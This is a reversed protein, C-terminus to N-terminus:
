SQQDTGGHSSPRIQALSRWIESALEFNGRSEGERALDELEAQASTDGQVLRLQATLARHRMLDRYALLESHQEVRHSLQQAEDFHGELFALRARLSLFEATNHPGGLIMVAPEAEDLHQRITDLAPPDTRLYLGAAAFRLRMWTLPDSAADLEAMAQNLVEAGEVLRRAYIRQSAITWLSEARLRRPLLHCVEELQNAHRDALEFEGLETEVSVLALLISAIDAPQVDEDEVSELAKEASKRAKDLHGQARLYRAQKAMAQAHLGPQGLQESLGLLADLYPGESGDQRNSLLWLAQWRLALDAAPENEYAERLREHDTEPDARYTLLSLVVEALTPMEPEEFASVPVGLRGALYVRARETPKRTGSELRSLYPKSMEPGSLDAQSLGRAQRLRRLRRGFNVQGLSEGM